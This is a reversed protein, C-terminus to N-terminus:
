PSAVLRYFRMTAPSDSFKISSAEPQPVIETLLTWGRSGLDASYEIRYRKAASANFSLIVGNGASLTAHLSLVSSPERPNTGTLYEQLNSMGDGDPDLDADAPNHSDLGYALEWIDPIGDGDSDVLSSSSTHSGPSPSTGVWDAPDNGSIMGSIRTISLGTADANEPWPSLNSYNVEDVIVWGGPDGARGSAQPKELSIRDSSNGLQGSYPGFVAVSGTIAYTQKFALLAAANTPNFNALLLTQGAKLTVGNPFIFKIGGDVRWAGNTNFLDVSSSTPNFLEVFEDMSNDEPQSATPRPHYMLETFIVGQIMPGNPSSETPIAPVWFGTGDPIRSLTVDPEQAKFTLADLIRDQATGPLFSLFLQEGNSSLGFGDTTSLHFGTIEDFVIREGSGLEGAPFKWKKLQTIDDSLYVSQFSEQETGANYLEIWDNSDAGLNQPDYYTTNAAFENLVLGNVPTPDARGPSGKIFMSTRWNGGYNLSGLNESLIASDRPVLSHGGGDAAIPWGRGDGYLFSILDSGGSAAKITITEGSNDLSGQYPGFLAVSADLNYFARFAAPDSTHTVLLYAGPALATNTPFTYDIGQTFKVGNLDLTDSSSINHLEIFEFDSGAPPNYMLETVRLNESLATLNDSEGATFEVPASWNSWRGNIDKMKVRARYLHGVKLASSPFKFDSVFTNFEPSEWASEVEYKREAFPDFTPSATPSIEGVRWKIAAFASSGSYPSCRFSLQNIPFNTPALSSLSPKSPRKADAALSDLRAMRNIVYRKMLQPAGYFTNSTGPQEYSFQYFLGWGAKQPLVGYSSNVLIPNYDWQARDADTISLGAQGHVMNAYEDILQFMQDTNFLLDRVERIRNKYEIALQPQNANQAVRDRFPENGGGYMNDAWTLDMDWPHVSWLGTLANHYYQYNKGPPDDVDYHHVAEIVTRYSYYEALDLNTRWWQTSPSSKYTNIFTALDSTDPPLTRAQNEKTGFDDRM